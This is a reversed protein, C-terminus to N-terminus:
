HWLPGRSDPSSVALGQVREKLGAQWGASIWPMWVLNIWVGCASVCVCVISGGGFPMWVLNIWPTGPAHVM